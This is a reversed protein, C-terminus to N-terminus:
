CVCVCDWGGGLFHEGFGEEEGGVGEAVVEFVADGRVEFGGGAGREGGEEGGGGEGGGEGGVGGGGCGGAGGFDGEADVGGGGGVGEGVEGGEEGLAAVADVGEHDGLDVGGGVQVEDGVDQALQERGAVGRGAGCGWAGLGGDGDEREDLGRAGDRVQRGDARGRGVEGAEDEGGLVERQGQRGRARGRQALEEERALGDGGVGGGVGQGAGDVEHVGAVGFVGGVGLVVVGDGRAQDVLAGAAALHAEVALLADM